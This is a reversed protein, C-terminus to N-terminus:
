NQYIKRDIATGLIAAATVTAVTPTLENFSKQWAMYTHAEFINMKRQNRSTAKTNDISFYATVATMGRTPNVGPQHLVM